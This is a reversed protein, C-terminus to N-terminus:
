AVVANVLEGPAEEAPCEVHSRTEAPRIWRLEFALQGGVVFLEVAWRSLSSGFRVSSVSVIRGEGDTTLSANMSCSYLLLLAAGLCTALLLPRRVANGTDGLRWRLASATGGDSVM